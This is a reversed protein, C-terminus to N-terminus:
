ILTVAVFYYCCFLLENCSYYVYNVFFLFTAVAGFSQGSYSYLLAYEGYREFRIQIYERTLFNRLDLPIGQQQLLETYINIDYYM